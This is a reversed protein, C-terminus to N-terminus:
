ARNRTIPIVTARTVRDGHVEILVANQSKDLAELISPNACELWRTERGDRLFAVRREDILLTMDVVKVDGLVEGRSADDPANISFSVLGNSIGAFYDAIRVVQGM